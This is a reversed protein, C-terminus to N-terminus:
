SNQRVWTQADEEEEPSFFKVPFPRYGQGTFLTLKDTWRDECVVAMRGIKPDSKQQFWLDGWDGEDEWGAFDQARILIRADTRDELLKAVTQQAETYEPYSLKGSVRLVILGNSIEAGVSGM